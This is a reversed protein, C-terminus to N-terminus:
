KLCHIHGIQGTRITEVIKGQIIQSHMKLLLELISYSCIFVISSVFYEYINVGGGWSKFRLNNCSQEIVQKRKSGGSMRSSIKKVDFVSYEQIKRQWSVSDNGRWSTKAGVPPWYKPFQSHIHPDTTALLGAEAAPGSKSIVSSSFISKNSNM